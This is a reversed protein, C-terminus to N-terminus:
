GPGEVGACQPSASRDPNTSTYPPDTSGLLTSIKELAPVHGPIPSLGSAQARTAQSLSLLRYSTLSGIVLLCALPLICLAFRRRSRKRKDSLHANIM